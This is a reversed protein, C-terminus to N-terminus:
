IASLSARSDNYQISNSCLFLYRSSLSYSDICPSQSSSTLIRTERQLFSSESTQHNLDSPPFSPQLKLASPHLLFASTHILFSTPQCPIMFNFGENFLIMAIWRLMADLLMIHQIPELCVPLRHILAHQLWLPHLPKLRQRCQHLFIFM